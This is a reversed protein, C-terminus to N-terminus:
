QTRVVVLMFRAYYHVVHLVWVQHCYLDGQVDALNISYNYVTLRSIFISFLFIASGIVTKM